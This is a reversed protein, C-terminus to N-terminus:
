FHREDSNDRELASPLGFMHLKLTRPSRHKESRIALVRIAIGSCQEYSNVWLLFDDSVASRLHPAAM